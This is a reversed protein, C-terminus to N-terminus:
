HLLPTYVHERQVGLYENPDSGRPYDPLTLRSCIPDISGVNPQFQTSAQPADIAKEELLLSLDHIVMPAHTKTAHAKLTLNYCSNKPANYLPSVIQM